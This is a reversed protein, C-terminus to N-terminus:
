NDSRFVSRVRGQMLGTGTELDVTLKTGQIVSPGQTLVVDGTMVLNAEDHEYVAEASEAADRGNFYTVGGTAHMRTIDTKGTEANEVYDVRIRPAALRMEGQIAVVDGEFVAIGQEDEVTLTDSTVEVPLDTDQQMPGLSVSTDQAIAIAPGISLFAALVASRIM